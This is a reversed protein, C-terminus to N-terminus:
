AEENQIAHFMDDINDMIPYRKAALSSRSFTGDVLDIYFTFKGDDGMYFEDWRRRPLQEKVELQEIALNDFSVVKFWDHKIIESFLYKKLEDQFMQVVEANEEYFIEGRRMNKYGLILIKLNCGSLWALDHVSVVGNIVHVVANPIQSIMGVFEETPDKLSVGLGYILKQDVFEKIRAYHKEFHTQNVTMNLIVQKEKMKLMFPVLDPHSLDNGNIAIETYPHLTDLFKYSMIDGHKGSQTCGEYCWPCAGDCKSTIKVDCNEAFDPIFDNEWTERVKTGDSYVKVCYNGNM